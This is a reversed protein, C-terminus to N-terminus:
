FKVSNLIIAVDEYLKSLVTERHKMTAKKSMELYTNAMHDVIVEVPYNRLLVEIQQKHIDDM